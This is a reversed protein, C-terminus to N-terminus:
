NALQTVQQRSEDAQEVIALRELFSDCGGGGGGGGGGSGGAPRDALRDALVTTLGAPRHQIRGRAGLELHAPELGVESRRVAAVSSPRAGAASSPEPLPVSSSRREHSESTSHAAAGPESGFRAPNLAKTLASNRRHIKRKGPRARADESEAAPNAAVGEGQVSIRRSLNRLADKTEVLSLRRQEGEQEM